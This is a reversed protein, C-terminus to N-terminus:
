VSDREVMSAYTLTAPPEMMHRGAVYRAKRCFDEVKVDFVMHCNIYQYTPPPEQGEGLIKFAVRCNDIEKKM